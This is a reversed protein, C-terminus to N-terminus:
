ALLIMKNVSKFTRTELINLYAGAPAVSPQTPDYAVAYITCISLSCGEVNLGM